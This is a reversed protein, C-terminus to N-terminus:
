VDMSEDITATDKFTNVTIQKSNTLSFECNSNATKFCEGLIPIVIKEVQSLDFRKDNFDLTITRATNLKASSLDSWSFYFTSGIRNAFSSIVINILLHSLFLCKIM